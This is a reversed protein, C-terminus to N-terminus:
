DVLFHGQLEQFLKNFDPKKWDGAATEVFVGRKGMVAVTYDGGTVAWGLVPIWKMGSEKTFQEAHQKFTRNTSAIMRAAMEAIRREINGRVDVLSGDDGFEAAMVVGPLTMLEDLTKAM